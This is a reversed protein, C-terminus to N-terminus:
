GIGPGYGEIMGTLWIHGVPNATHVYCKEPWFDNEAMWLVIPRTTDDGGLDHDFSVAEVEVGFKKFFEFFQITTRSDGFWWWDESPKRLDDIWIKM